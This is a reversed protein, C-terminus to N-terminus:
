FAVNQSLNRVEGVKRNKIRQYKTRRAFWDAATSGTEYKGPAAERAEKIMKSGALPELVVSNGPRSFFVISWRDFAAQAKPPTVVRHVNSRLIGASFVAM